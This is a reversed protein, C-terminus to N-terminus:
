RLTYITVEGDGFSTPEGLQDFKALGEPPYTARELGGVYVYRVGYKALLDRAQAVDTTSFIRYVDDCRPQLQAAAAPDGGRWQSEHGSWGLVTPIGSAASVGAYGEGNYSGGCRPTAGAAVDEPNDVKAAELIVSGPAANARLWSIAQKGGETQERPTPSELGIAPGLGLDRLALAPYVGAGMLMIAFLTAIGGGIIRRAGRTHALVYWLAFPTLTGWLLWVQYYFKFITNFRASWGEFTDRIYIIETGFVIACGLAVVLLAFSEAPREGMRLALMFALIGLGALALLPFGVLLGILLLVPPLWLLVGKVGGRGSLSLPSPPSPRALYVFAALPIVFLGFIILFPAIGSRAAPYPAIISTIKALIPLDILPAAGGVLSRFTLYFPLFLLFSAIVVPGLRRAYALWDTPGAGGVRRQLVLAAGAYLLLYTPLDWSNIAYLGGLIVGSVILEAGGARGSALAPSEARALTALCMALALLTFPLSMVHPHMDGLRFSFLPFETIDYRREQRPPQGSDRVTYADWLSRSPWWWNFAGPAAMDQREWASLEGFDSVTTMYPLSISDAGGLAQGAASMLQRGDLAVAKESGLLVQVAGSQNGAVLVLLAGLVALLWRGWASARQSGVGSEQGGGALAILNVVVGAVGLATLAFILALSLNYAVSPALGSLQAVGAMLLYGFYYYNISYGALWPDSPPFTASRQIANFFAFDMARETGWPTPDHARMWVCALMAALFIVEYGLITPWPPLLPRRPAPAARWVWLGLGAVALACVVLLPASFGGLGLMALLWALYGSLLLGLAKAFPYGGDPLSRFILGALPLGALGLAQAILWWIFIDAVM